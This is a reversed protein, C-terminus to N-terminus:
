MHENLQREVALHRFGFLARPPTIQEGDLSSMEWVDTTALLGRLASVIILRFFSDHVRAFSAAQLDLCCFLAAWFAFWFFPAM